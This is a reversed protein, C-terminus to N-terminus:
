LSEYERADLGYKRFVPAFTRHYDQLSKLYGKVTQPRIECLNSIWDLSGRAKPEPRPPLKWHAPIVGALAARRLVAFLAGTARTQSVCSIGIRKKVGTSIIEVAAEHLMAIIERDQEGMTIETQESPFGCEALAHPVYRLGLRSLNTTVWSTEQNEDLHKLLDTCAGITRILSEGRALGNPLQMLGAAEPRSCATGEHTCVLYVLFGLAARKHQSRIVGGRPIIDTTYVFAVQKLLQMSFSRGTLALYQKNYNCLEEFVDATRVQVTDIVASKDLERQFRRSDDGVIILRPARAKKTEEGLSALDSDVPCEYIRKCDPCIREAENQRRDTGVGCDECIEWPQLQNSLLPPAAAPALSSAPPVASQTAGPVEADCDLARDLERFAADM